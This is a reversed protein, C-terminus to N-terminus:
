VFLHERLGLHFKVKEYMHDFLEQTTPQNIDGWWIKDKSSPEEVFFKDKPSRGTYQGTLVRLAGKDTQHGEGLKIAYEIIEPPNLNWHVLSYSESINIGVDDIDVKSSRPHQVTQLPM